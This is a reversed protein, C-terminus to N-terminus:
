LCGLVELGVERRVDVLQVGGGSPEVAEVGAGSAQFWTNLCM